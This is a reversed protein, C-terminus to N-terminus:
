MVVFATKAPEAVYGPGEDRVSVIGERLRGLAARVLTETDPHAGVHASVEDLTARVQGQGFGLKCLVTFARRHHDIAPVHPRRAGYVSGNAHHFRLGQPPTGRIIMRGDHVAGHHVGCLVVLNELDHSGGESRLKLHHVDLFLHHRCGPVACRGKAREVVARRTAPPVSQSARGRPRKPDSEASRGRPRGLESESERGRPREPAPAPEAEVVSCDCLAAEAVEPRVTVREGGSQQEAAGCRECIGMHIQYSARGADEASTNGGAVLARAMLQLVADDDLHHGAERIAVTRAEDIIAKTAADVEFRLLHRKPNPSPPDDPGDGSERDAVMREIERVTKGEIAALWALETEPVAVRTVERAASWNLRGRYLAERTAPLAELARAVRLRAETSRPNWGFLREAYEFFSAYGLPEWVRALLGKLLWQGRFVDRAADDRALACLHEHIEGPDLTTDDWAPDAELMRVDM